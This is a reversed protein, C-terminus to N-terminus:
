SGRYPSPDILSYGFWGMTPRNKRENELVNHFSLWYTADRAGWEPEFPVRALAEDIMVTVEQEATFVEVNGVSGASVRTPDKRMEKIEDIVRKSIGGFYERNEPHYILNFASVLDHNKWAKVRKDGPFYGAEFAERLTGLSVGLRAHMALPGAFPIRELGSALKAVNNFQVTSQVVLANM